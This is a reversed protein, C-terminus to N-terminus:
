NLFGFRSFHPIVANVIKVYGFESIIDLRDNAIDEYTGDPALYVFKYADLVEQPVDLGFFTLNLLPPEIFTMQPSFEATVTEDDVTMSILKETGYTNVDWANAPFDITGGAFKLWIQQTFDFYLFTVEVFGGTSVDILKSQTESKLLVPQKDLVPRKLWNQESSVLQVDQDPAVVLENQNCATLMLLATIVAITFKKMIFRKNYILKNNKM